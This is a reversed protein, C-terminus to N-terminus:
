IGRLPAYRLTTSRLPASPCLLGRVPRALPLLLLNSVRTTLFFWYDCVDAWFCDNQFNQKPITGTVCMFQTYGLFLTCVYCSRVPIHPRSAVRPSYQYSRINALAWPKIVNKNQPFSKPTTLIIDFNKQLTVLFKSCSIFNLKMVALFIIQTRVHFIIFQVDTVKIM